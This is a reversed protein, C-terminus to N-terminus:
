PQTPISRCSCRWGHVTVIKLMQNPDRRLNGLFVIQQNHATLGNQPRYRIRGVLELPGHLGVHVRPVRWLLGGLDLTRNALRARGTRVLAADLFSQDFRVNHGVFVAGGMWELLSPLVSEIRPARYLMAQTIGTLVTIEPPVACGPNVLTHFTGLCEGGRVKVAGIETIACDNPSSGTTELDLVCFTVEALPTGLDDFSRQVGRAPPTTAPALSRPASGLPLTPSRM